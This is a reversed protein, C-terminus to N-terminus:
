STEEQDPRDGNAHPHGAAQQLTQWFGKQLNEMSQLHAPLWPKMLAMPDFGEIGTTVNHRIIDLMEKQLPEVDPLGFFARLEQPTTEIDLKIKV